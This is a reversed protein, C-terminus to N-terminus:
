APPSMDNGLVKEISIPLSRVRTGTVHYVANAIGAAVGTIALEGVGKTGVSSMSYPQGVFLVDVGASVAVVYDGLSTNV